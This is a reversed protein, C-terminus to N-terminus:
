SLTTEETSKPHLTQPVLEYGEQELLRVLGKEGPLHGAGVSIFIPYKLNNEDDRFDNIWDNHRKTLYHIKTDEPLMEALDEQQYEKLYQVLKKHQEKQYIHGAQSNKQSFLSNYATNYIVAFFTCLKNAAITIKPYSKIFKYSRWPFRVISTGFFIQIGLLATRLYPSELYLVSADGRYKLLEYMAREIGLPLQSYQKQPDSEFIFTKCINLYPALATRKIRYQDLSLNLRFSGFLYGKFTDNKYLKYLIKSTKNM